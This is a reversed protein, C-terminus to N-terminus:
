QSRYLFRGCQPCTFIKDETKIEVYLQPPISMYCGLCVEDKAEAIALGNNKELLMMYQDYLEKNIKKTIESRQAKLEDLEKEIQQQKKKLEEEIEKLRKKEEEVKKEAEKVRQLAEETEEMLFLIDDEILYKEKEKKEIEKLHAQYEKNTKIDSTRAKLKEIKDSIESLELEKNRRKKESSEYRAKQAQLEKEAAKLPSTFKIIEDPIREIETKKTIIQTDIQQLRILHELDEKM